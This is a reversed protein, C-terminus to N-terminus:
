LPGWKKKSQSANKRSRDLTVKTTKRRYKTKIMAIQMSTMCSLGTVIAAAGKMPSISSGPM